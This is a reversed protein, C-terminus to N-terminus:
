GIGHDDEDHDKVEEGARPDEDAVGIVAPAVVWSHQTRADHICFRLAFCNRRLGTIVRLWASANFLARMGGIGSCLVDVHYIDVDVSNVIHRCVRCSDAITIEISIGPRFSKEGDHQFECPDEDKGTDSTAHLRPFPRRINHLHNILLYHFDVIEHELDVLRTVDSKLRFNVIASGCIDVVRVV